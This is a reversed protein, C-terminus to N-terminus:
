HLPKFGSRLELSYQGSSDNCFCRVENQMAIRKGGFSYGTVGSFLNICRYQKAFLVHPYARHNGFAPSFTSHCAVGDLPLNVGHTSLKRM